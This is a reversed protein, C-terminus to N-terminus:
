QQTSTPRTGVKVQTNLTKDKRIVGVKITRGPQLNAVELMGEQGNSITNNDIRTIIDGPQLGAVFAPSNAYINTIIIGNTEKLNLQGALEPTLQTVEIGLWGRIVHGYQIIDNAVKKAIDVPTALGIGSTTGNQSYSASNIGIMEGQTNILAGGSSGVSIAADTQIFNEYTNLNLGYRGIASIIGSSVTQGFGYPNGIALVSDGVRMTNLNGFKIAKLDPLTIKLIALDTDIDVGLITALAQRNDHTLILIEEADKIVHYNTLLLGAKDVIVGSGLSLERKKELRLQRQNLYYDNINNPTYTAKIKTTYINVVSPAAESVADALSHENHLQMDQYLLFCAALLVGFLLGLFIVNLQKM